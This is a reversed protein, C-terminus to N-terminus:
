VCVCGDGGRHQRPVVGRTTGQCSYGERWVGNCFEELLSVLPILWQAYKSLCSQSTSPSHAHAASRLLSHPTAAPQLPLRKHYPLAIPSLWWMVWLLSMTLQCGCFGCKSGGLLCSTGHSTGDVSHPGNDRFLTHVCAPHHSSATPHLHCRQEHESIGQQGPWLSFHTSQCVPKVFPYMYNTQTFMHLLPM